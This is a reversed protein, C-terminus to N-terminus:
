IQGKTQPIKSSHEKILHVKNNDLNWNVNKNKIKNQKKPRIDLTQIQEQTDQIDQIQIRITEQEGELYQNSKKIQIEQLQNFKESNRKKIYEEFHNQNIKEENEYLNFNIENPKNKHTYSDFEDQKQKYLQNFENRRSKKFDDITILEQNIIDLNEDQNNIYINKYTIIENINPIINKLSIIVYDLFKENIQLLNKEIILNNTIKNNTIYKNCFLKVNCYFIIKIKTLLDQKTNDLYLTEVLLNWLFTINQHTMFTNNM